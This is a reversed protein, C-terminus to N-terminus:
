GKRDLGPRALSRAMRLISRRTDPDQKAYAALLEAAHPRGLFEAQEPTVAPAGDEGALAAVTTELAAAIRVLVSASVRSSGHEYRQVQQYTLGIADGVDALTFGRELRRARIRAALAIDIPDLGDAAINLKPV